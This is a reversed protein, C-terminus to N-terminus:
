IHNKRNMTLFNLKEAGGTLFQRLWNEITATCKGFTLAVAEIDPNLVLTLLAIFRFKLNMDKQRDRYYELEKIENESFKHDCVKM